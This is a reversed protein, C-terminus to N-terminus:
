PLRDKTDHMGAARRLRQDDSPANAESQTHAQLEDDRLADTRGTVREM